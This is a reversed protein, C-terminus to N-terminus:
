PMSIEHWFWRIHKLPLCLEVFFPYFPPIPRQLHTQPVKMFITKLFWRKSMDLTDGVAGLKVTLRIWNLPMTAIMKVHRGIRSNLTACPDTTWHESRLMKRRMEMKADANRTNGATRYTPSKLWFWFPTMSALFDRSRVCKISSMYNEIAEAYQPPKAHFKKNGKLRYKQADSFAECCSMMM